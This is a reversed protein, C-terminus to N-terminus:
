ARKKRKHNKESYTAASARPVVALTVLGAYKSIDDQTRIKDDMVFRLTIIGVALLVGLMFGLALNRTRNPSSPSKPKLAVSLVSPEDTRMTDSIYKRAVNAYENALLTAEVPDTSTVTIHLIRTNPPNSIDLMKQIANYSYQLGLNQIVQEHVEWTKFVEKYDPTLNSGIQLDALNIASDKSGLVYLKSTAQYQPTVIYLTYVGALIVGLAAALLIYKLNALLTTLLELLDIETENSADERRVLTMTQVPEREQM